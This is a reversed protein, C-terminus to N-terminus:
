SEPREFLMPSAFWRDRSVLYDALEDDSVLSLKAEYVDLSLGGEEPCLCLAGGPAVWDPRPGPCDRCRRWGKHYDHSWGSGGCVQCRKRRVARLPPPLSIKIRQWITISGDPNQRPEPLPEGHKLAKM